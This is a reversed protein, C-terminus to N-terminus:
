PTGLDSAEEWRVQVGFVWTGTAPVAARLSFGENQVLVLPHRASDAGLLKVGPSVLSTFAATGISGAVEAIGNADSTKTGAGLAATSSVRIAGAGVGATGFRQRLKGESVITPTSGGTGAATWAREPSLRFLWSGAAFGTGQGVAWLSVETILVTLGATANRFQYIEADAALAAAMTGSRAAVMYEGSADYRKVAFGKQM